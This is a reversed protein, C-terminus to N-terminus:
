GGLREWNSPAVRYVACMSDSWGGVQPMVRLRRSWGPRYVTVCGACPRQKHLHTYPLNWVERTACTGVEMEETKRVARTVHTCSPRGNTFSQRRAASGLDAVVCDHRPRSVSTSSAPATVDCGHLGWRQKGKQQQQETRGVTGDPHWEVADFHAHGRFITIIALHSSGGGNLTTNKSALNVPLSALQWAMTQDLSGNRWTYTLRGDVWMRIYNPM